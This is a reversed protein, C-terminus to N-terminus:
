WVPGPVSFVETRLQEPPTEGPDNAYVEWTPTGLGRGTKRAEQEAQGYAEALKDYPGVHVFHLVEGAPTVDAKIEGQAKGADDASVPIGARFAMQEPDYTYYVSMPMGTPTLGHQGIFAMVKGFAEGMAAGVADPNAPASGEVYLYPTEDVNVTKVEM